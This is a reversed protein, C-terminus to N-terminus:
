SLSISYKLFSQTALKRIKVIMIKNAKMNNNKEKCRANFANTDAFIEM